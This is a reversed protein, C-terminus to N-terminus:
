EPLAALVGFLLVSLRHGAAAAVDLVDAHTLAGPRIGTAM